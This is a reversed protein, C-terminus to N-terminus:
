YGERVCAFKEQGAVDWVQTTASTHSATPARQRRACNQHLSLTRVNFIIPGYNTYFKIPTHEMCLTPVYNKEFEGTYQGAFFLTPM